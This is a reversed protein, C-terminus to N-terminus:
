RGVHQQEGDRLERNPNGRTPGKPGMGVRGSGTGVVLMEKSKLIQCLCSMRQAPRGQGANFPRGGGNAGVPDALVEM